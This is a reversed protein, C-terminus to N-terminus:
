ITWDEVDFLDVIKGKNPITSDNLFQTKGDNLWCHMIEGNGHDTRISPKLTPNELDGNWSWAYRSSKDRSGKTIVGLRHYGLLCDSEMGYDIYFELEYVENINDTINGHKDRMRAKM